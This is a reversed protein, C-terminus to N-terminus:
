RTFIFLLMTWPNLLALLLGCFGIEVVFPFRVENAGLIFVHDFLHMSVWFRWFVPSEFIFYYIFKELFLLFAIIRFVLEYFILLVLFWRVIFWTDDLEVCTDGFSAEGIRRFWGYIVFFVLFIILTDFLMEIHPILLMPKRFLNLSSINIIEMVSDLILWNPWLVYRKRRKLGLLWLLGNLSRFIRFIGFDLRRLWCIFEHLESAFSLFRCGFTVRGNLIWMKLLLILRSSFSINCFHRKIEIIRRYSFLLWSVLDDLAHGHGVWLDSEIGDMVRPFYLRSLM